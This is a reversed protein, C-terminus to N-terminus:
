RTNIKWQFIIQSWCSPYKILVFVNHVSQQTVITRPANIRRARGFPEKEWCSNSLHEHNKLHLSFKYLEIAARAQKQPVFPCQLVFALCLPKSLTKILCSQVQLQMTNFHHLSIFINAALFYYCTHYPPKQNSQLLLFQNTSKCYICPTLTKRSM